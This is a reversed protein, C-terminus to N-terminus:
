ACASHPGLGAGGVTTGYLANGKKTVGANPYAGNDVSPVFTHIVSFTQAHVLPALYAVLAILSLYAVPKLKM